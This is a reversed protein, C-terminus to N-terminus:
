KTRENKRGSRIKWLQGSLTLCIFIGIAIGGLDSQIVALHAMFAPSIGSIHCHQIADIPAYFLGIIALCLLARNAWLYAPGRRYTYYGAILILSGILIIIDLLNHIM